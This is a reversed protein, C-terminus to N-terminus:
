PKKLPKKNIMLVKNEPKLKSKKKKRCYEDLISLLLIDFIYANKDKRFSSYLNQKFESWNKNLKELVWAKLFVNFFIIDKEM